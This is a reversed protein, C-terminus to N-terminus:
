VFLGQMLGKKWQEANIIQKQKLEILNDLSSLFNAIKQQEELCPLSIGMESLTSLVIYPTNGEKKEKVIRIHLKKELLYKIYFIDESFEDLVYTRQYANFKGKYYHIYGVNAGNDSILLAEADFAYKDIKYWEKACTYFRYKGDKIMANADLKGTKIRCIKGLKMEVCASYDNGKEDKFRIEQSFIKQMMGKKYQQLNKKQERLNEIWNDVSTLFTAIKQQEKAVPIIVKLKKLHGSTVLPQGSGFVLRNINKSKLYNFFFDINNDNKGELVLTNDTVAFQGSVKNIQGANAGVRAILIYDGKFSFKTSKGIEGTSGYVPYNGFIEPKDKGSKIDTFVEGLKKEEWASLFGSFRLASILKNQKKTKLKM